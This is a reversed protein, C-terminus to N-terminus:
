MYVIYQVGDCTLMKKQMFPIMCITRLNVKEVYHIKSIHGLDNCMSGLTM